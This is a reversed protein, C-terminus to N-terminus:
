NPSDSDNDAPGATRKENRKGGWVDEAIDDERTGLGPSVPTRRAQYRGENKMRQVANFFFLANKQFDEQMMKGVKSRVFESDDSNSHDVVKDAVKVDLGEVKPASSRDQYLRMPLAVAVASPSTSAPWPNLPLQKVDAVSLVTAVPVQAQVQAKSWEEPPTSQTRIVSTRVLRM